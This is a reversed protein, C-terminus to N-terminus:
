AAVSNASGAIVPAVPVIGESDAQHVADRIEGLTPFRRSGTEKRYHIQVNLLAAHDEQRAFEALRLDAPNAWAEAWNMFRELGGWDYRVLASRTNSLKHM